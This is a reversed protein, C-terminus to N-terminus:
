FPIDDDLEQSLTRPDDATVGGPPLAKMPSPITPMHGNWEAWDVISFVPTIITTRHVKHEYSDAGLEVVPVLGVHNERVSKWDRALKRVANVGGTSSTVFKLQNRRPDAFATRLCFTWPDKGEPWLGENHDGLDNRLIPPQTSNWERFAEEAIKGGVWKQWGDQVSLPAWKLRRGLDMVTKESGRTFQGTKGNFRLLDGGLVDAGVNRDYGNYNMQVHMLQNM